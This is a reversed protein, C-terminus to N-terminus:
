RELSLWGRRDSRCASHAYLSSILGSCPPPSRCERGRGPIEAHIASSHVFTWSALSWRRGGRHLDMLSHLARHRQCRRRGHCRERMEVQVIQHQLMALPKKDLACTLGPAEARYGITVRGNCQGRAVTRHRGNRDTGGNGKMEDRGTRVVRSSWARSGGTEPRDRAM